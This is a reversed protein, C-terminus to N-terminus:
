MQKEVYPDGSVLMGIHVQRCVSSLFIPQLDAQVTNLFVTM